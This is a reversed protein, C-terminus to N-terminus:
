KSLNQFDTKLQSLSISNAPATITKVQNFTPTFSGLVTTTGDTSKDSITLSKMQHGLTSVWMEVVPMSATATTTVNEPNITFSSDCGHLQKYISTNLLGTAFAKTAVTDSKLSYGLNGDKTGLEKDIIIFPHKSYLDTIEGSTAKDNRVKDVADNVCTKGKAASASLGNLDSSSIKIWTGDIKTVLKDVAASNTSYSKLITTIDGLHEIKFYFDGSNDILGSGNIAYNKDATSYILKADISGSANLQQGTFEFKFKSASSDSSLSAVYAVSKAAMAHVLADTVVKQPNQYWFKYALASSSGLLVVVLVSIIAILLSKKMKPKIPFQSVPGGPGVPTTTSADPINMPQAPSIPPVSQGIPQTTPEIDQVVVFDEAAPETVSEVENFDAVPPTPSNIITKPLSNFTLPTHQSFFQPEPQVDPQTPDDPM